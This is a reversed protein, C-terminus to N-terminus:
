GIEFTRRQRDDVITVENLTKGRANPRYPSPAQRLIEFQSIYSLVVNFSINRCLPAPVVTQLTM